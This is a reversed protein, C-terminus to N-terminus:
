GLSQLRPRARRRAREVQLVNLAPGARGRLGARDRCGGADGTADGGAAQQSVEGQRARCVSNLDCSLILELNPAVHARAVRQGHDERGNRAAALDGASPAHASAPAVTGASLAAGFLRSRDLGLMVLRLM